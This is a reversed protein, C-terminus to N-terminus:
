LSASAEEISKYTPVFPLVGTLELIERVMPSPNVLRLNKELNLRIIVSVGSSNIYSVTGLDLIIDRPARDPQDFVFDVLDQCQELVFDKGPVRLVLVGNEDSWQITKFTEVSRARPVPSEKFSVSM